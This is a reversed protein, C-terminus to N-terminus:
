EGDARFLENILIALESFKFPKRLIFDANFGEDAVLDLEENWGTMICTKPRKGLKNCAKVVGYGNVHPMSLDSLVLDFGEGEVMDIADAGNDVTEVNHGKKSLFEHLINRMEDEDDVVLINLSKEITEQKTDPVAILNERKNTAPFQLTFTSGVGVESDVNIKGGHRTVIGYSTSLGLGTGEPRRTTFFPDFIDKKIDEAIGKGTDTISVFVTDDKSWTRFALTGGDPMADIANNIINILVDVIEGSNCSISSINEMCEMDANYDIGKFQAMNKWRLMTFEVARKILVNIDVHEFNLGSTDSHTFERMRGTISTGNKIAEHVIHLRDTLKRHDKYDMQLLQISGSINALINNFEHSIGATITGISKLKESQLLAEEMQKRDTVDRSIGLVGIVSGDSDLLPIKKTDFVRIKDGVNALDAPNHITKGSLVKRDDNEFGYIGEDPRGQVLEPDWGNEIDTKGLLDGPEKGVAAAFAKNCIVTRFETDKVFIMDSTTDLINTLMEMANSLEVEIKKRETIDQVISLIYDDGDSGKIRAGNLLVPVRNGGKQIYEKEYPGYRGTEELSRLQRVEDEKFQTPTIDWYTLQMIEEKTYGIIGSYTQNFEVLTGDMKCLAMGVNSSEFMVRYKEESERLAEEAHKRGTIDSMIIICQTSDGEPGSVASCNLLAYFQTGDDKVMKLECIGRESTNCAKNRELHYIDVDEKMIFRNLPKGILSDREMGLMEAAALNTDLIIGEDCTIIYEVPAFDYLRSYKDRSEELNQQSERLAKNQMELEVQYVQLEHALKRTEEDTLKEIQINVPKLNKESKSRFDQDKKQVTEKEKM